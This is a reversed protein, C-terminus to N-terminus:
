KRPLQGRVAKVVAEHSEKVKSDLYFTNSDLQTTITVSGREVRIAVPVNNLGKGNVVNASRVENTVSGVTALAKVSATYAADVSVSTPVDIVEVYPKSMGGAACGTLVVAAAASLALFLRKMM